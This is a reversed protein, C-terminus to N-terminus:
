YCGIKLDASRASQGLFIFARDAFANASRGHEMLCPLYRSAFNVDSTGERLM